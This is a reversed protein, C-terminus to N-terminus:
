AGSATIEIIKKLMAKAEASDWEADGQLRAIERGQRDFIITVPLGLAGSRRAFASTRDQLIPLNRVKLDEYFAKIRDPGFRDTSITLIAFDTGVLEGALRDISPMEARCPPCWTAWLNVMVVRGAYDALTVTKGAADTFEEKPGPRAKPHLVMKKMTGAKLPKLAALRAEGTLGTAAGGGAGSGDTNAWMAFAGYLLAFLVGAGIGAIVFKRM